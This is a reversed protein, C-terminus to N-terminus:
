TVDLGFTVNPPKGPFVDRRLDKPERRPNQLLSPPSAVAPERGLFSRREQSAERHHAACEWVIM